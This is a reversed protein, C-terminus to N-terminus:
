RQLETGYPGCETLPGRKKWMAKWQALAMFNPAPAWGDNGESDIHRLSAAGHRDKVWTGVPPEPPAPTSQEHGCNECRM